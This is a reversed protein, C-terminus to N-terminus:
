LTNPAFLKAIREQHRREEEETMKDLAASASAEAKEHFREEVSVASLDETSLSALEKSDAFVDEIADLQLKERVYDNAPQNVFDTRIPEDELPPKTLTDPKIYSISQDAFKVQSLAPNDAFSVPHWRPDGDIKFHTPPAGFTAKEYIIRTIPRTDYNEQSSNTMQQNRKSM